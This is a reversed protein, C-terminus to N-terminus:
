IQQMLQEIRQSESVNNVKSIFDPDIESEEDLCKKHKIYKELLYDSQAIKKLKKHQHVTFSGFTKSQIIQKKKNM